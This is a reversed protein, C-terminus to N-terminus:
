TRCRRRPVCCKSALFDWSSGRGQHWSSTEIIARPRFALGRCFGPVAPDLQLRLFGFAQFPVSRFWGFGASCVQGCSTATFRGACTHQIM